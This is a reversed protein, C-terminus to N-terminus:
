ILIVKIDQLLLFILRIFYFALSIKLNMDSSNKLINFLFMLFKENLLIIKM